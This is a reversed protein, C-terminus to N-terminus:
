PPGKPPNMWRQWCSATSYKVDEASWQMTSMDMFTMDYFSSMMAKPIETTQESTDTVTLTTRGLAANGMSDAISVDPSNANWGSGMNLDVTIGLKSAEAIVTRLKAYFSDTYVDAVREDPYEDDYIGFPNIEVMGFNNEALYHLEKILEEEEVAGGSWWWRVGPRYETSPLNFEEASIASQGASSPQAAAPLTLFGATLALTMMAALIRKMIRHKMM